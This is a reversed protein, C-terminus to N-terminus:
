RTLRQSKSTTPSWGTSAPSACHYARHQASFCTRPLLNVGAKYKQTASKMAKEYAPASFSHQFGSLATDDIDRPAVQEIGTFLPSSRITQLDASLTLLAATNASKKDDSDLGRRPRPTVAAAVLAGAAVPAGNTAMNSSEAKAAPPAAEAKSNKEAADDGRCACHTKRALARPQARM